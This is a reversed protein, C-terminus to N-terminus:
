QWLIIEMAYWVIGVVNPSIAICTLPSLAAGLCTFSFFMEFMQFFTM